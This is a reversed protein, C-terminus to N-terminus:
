ILKLLITKKMGKRVLARQIKLKRPLYLLIVYDCIHRIKAEFLLPIDLIAIKTKKIRHRTLFKDRSKKVEKHIYKELEKKKKQNGFIAERITNKNIKKWRITTGLGIDKLHKILAQSPKSYITKVVADSDHVAFKNKKLFNSITTKGTAIGGTLGIIIM